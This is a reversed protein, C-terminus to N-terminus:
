TADAEQPRGATNDPAAIGAAVRVEKLLASAQQEDVPDLYLLRLLIMEASNWRKHRHAILALGYLARLLPRNAEEQWPLVGHDPMPFFLPIEAVALACEYWRRAESLVERDRELGQDRAAALHLEARILYAEAAAPQEAALQECRAAAEDPALRLLEERAAPPLSHVSPLRYVPRPGDTLVYRQWRDPEDVAELLAPDIEAPDEDDWDEDNPADYNLPEVGAAALHSPDFTSGCPQPQNQDGARDMAQVAEDCLGFDSSLLDMSVPHYQEPWMHAGIGPGWWELSQKLLLRVAVDRGAADLRPGQQMITDANEQVTKLAKQYGMGTENSLRRAIRSFHTPSTRPTTPM